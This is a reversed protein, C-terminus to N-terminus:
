NSALRVLEAISRGLGDIGPFLANATINMTRLRRALEHKLAAPVIVKAYHLKDSTNNFAQDLLEGHDGLVSRSISFIGQQSIMRDSKNNRGCFTMTTPPDNAFYLQRIEGEIKPINNSSGNQCMINDLTHIHVIWIAGDTHYEGNTAFYAAVYISTTWDLLRTPSGYHQMMTWWSITDTTTAFTNPSLHIHANEKFEKLALREIELAAEATTNTNFYRLLSPQLQWNVDSQGRFAYPHNGVSGIDTYDAIRRMDDWSKITVTEM